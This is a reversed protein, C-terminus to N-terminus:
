HSREVQARSVFGFILGLISGIGLLCLISLVLSAVALGNTSPQSASYDYGPMFSFPAPPPAGSYGYTGPFGEGSTQGSPVFPAFRPLGPTASTGSIYNEDVQVQTTADPHLHPPYWNGDSAQWWGPPGTVATM